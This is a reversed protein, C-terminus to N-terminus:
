KEVRNPRDDPASCIWSYSKIKPQDDVELLPDYLYYVYGGQNSDYAYDYILYAHGDYASYKDIRWEIIARSIIVVNGADLM